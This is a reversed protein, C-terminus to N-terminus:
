FNLNATVIALCAEELSNTEGSIHPMHMLADILVTYISREVRRTSKM